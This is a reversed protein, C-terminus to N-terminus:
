SGVQGEAVLRPRGKTALWLLPSAPSHHHEGTELETAAFAKEWKADQQTEGNIHLIEVNENTRKQRQQRHKQHRPSAAPLSPTPGGVEPIM